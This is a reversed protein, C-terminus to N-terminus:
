VHHTAKFTRIRLKRGTKLQALMVAQEQADDLSHAAIDFDFEIINGPTDWYICGVTVYYLNM